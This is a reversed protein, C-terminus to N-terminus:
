WEVANTPIDKWDEVYVTIIVQADGTPEVSGIGNVSTVNLQYINNRVIAYEMPSIVDPNNDDAHRIWYTYYCIGNEYKYVGYKKCNNDTLTIGDIKIDDLSPYFQNAYWYFTTGETFSNPTYQAKFVIGTCYQARSESVVEASVVNEQTYDLFGYTVGNQKSFIETSPERWNIGGWNTYTPFYIKDYENKINDTPPNLTKPDVVYNSAIETSSGKEDGLYVVDSTPSINIDQTVRKFVYSQSNYKNVLTAGIIKVKDNPANKPTFYPQAEPYALHYDVRAVTREVNVTVTSPNNKSNNAEITIKSVDPGASSMLFHHVGGTESMAHYKIERLEALTNRELVISMNRGYNAVVLVDYTQGIQLNTEASVEKTVSYIADYNSESNKGDYQLEDEDFFLCKVDINEANSSNIGDDGQFFFVNLDYVSSEEVTGAQPDDGDEGPTPVRSANSGGTNVVVSVYVGSGAEEEEAPSVPLTDDKCATVLLALLFPLLLYTLANRKM